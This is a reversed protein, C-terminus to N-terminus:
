WCATPIDALCRAPIKFTHPSPPPLPPFYFTNEHTRIARWGKGEFDVHGDGNLDIDRLIDELDRHGVQLPSITLFWLSNLEAQSECQYLWLPPCLLETGTTRFAKEYSRSTRSYQDSRRWKHWVSILFFLSFDGIQYIILIINEKEKIYGYDATLTAYDETTLIFRSILNFNGLYVRCVHIPETQVSVEPSGKLWSPFTKVIKRKKEEQCQEGGQICGTAREGRDHGCNWGSTQAGHTRCLGWFWCTRGSDTLSSVPLQTLTWPKNLSISLPCNKIQVTQYITASWSFCCPQLPALLESICVCM